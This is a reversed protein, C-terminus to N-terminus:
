AATKSLCIQIVQHELESLVLSFPFFTKEVRKKKKKLPILNTLTTTFKKNIHLVVQSM